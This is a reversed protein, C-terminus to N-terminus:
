PHSRSGSYRLTLGLKVDSPQSNDSLHKLHNVVPAAAATIDGTITVPLAISVNDVVVEDRTRSRADRRECSTVGVEM